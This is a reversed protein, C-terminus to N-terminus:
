GSRHDALAARLRKVGAVAYQKDVAQIAMVSVVDDDALELQAWSAGKPFSVSKVVEWPLEHSGIVNRVAVGTDTVWVRPRSFLLIGGAFLLGLGIMTYQDAAHFVGGGETTGRLGTAVVSCIAVVAVAAIWCVRSTKRPRSVLERSPTPKDM